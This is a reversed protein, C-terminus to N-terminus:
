AVHRSRGGVGDDVLRGQHEVFAADDAVTEVRLQVTEAIQHAPPAVPDGRKLPLLDLASPDRVKLYPVVLYEAIVDLNRM